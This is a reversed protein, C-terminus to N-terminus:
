KPTGPPLLNRLAPDICMAKAGQSDTTISKNIVHCETTTKSQSADLPLPSHGGKGLKERVADCDLQLRFTDVYLDMLGGKDFFSTVSTIDGLDKLGRGFKVGRKYKDKFPTAQVREEIAEACLKGDRIYGRAICIKRDEVAKTIIESVLLQIAEIENVTRGTHTMREQTPLPEFDIHMKM